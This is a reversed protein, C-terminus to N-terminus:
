RLGPARADWEFRWALAACRLPSMLRGLAVILDALAPPLGSRRRALAGAGNRLRQLTFSAARRRLSRERLLGLARCSLTAFRAAGRIGSRQPARRCPHARADRTFRGPLCSSGSLPLPSTASPIGSLGSFISVGIRRLVAMTVTL